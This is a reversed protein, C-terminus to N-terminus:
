VCNRVYVVPVKMCMHEDKSTANYTHKPNSHTTDHACTCDASPSVESFPPAMSFCTRFRYSWNYWDYTKALEVVDESLWKPEPSVLLPSRRLSICIITMSFRSVTTETLVHKYRGRISVTKDKLVHIELVTCTKEVFKHKNKM